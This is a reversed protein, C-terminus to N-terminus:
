TLALRAGCESKLYVHEGASDIPQTIQAEAQRGRREERVRLLLTVGAKLGVCLLALLPGIWLPLAYDEKETM